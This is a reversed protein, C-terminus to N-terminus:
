RRVLAREVSDNRPSAQVRDPCGAGQRRPGDAAIFTGVALEGSEVAQTMPLSSSYIKPKLAALKTLFNKGYNEQVWLYWDVISPASPRDVGIRARPAELRAPRTTRSSARSVASTNWASASSRTASSSRRRRAERVAQPRVGELLPRARRRRRGVREQARRPRAAQQGVGLRRREPKNAGEEATVQTALVSDINRNVTVNIGYKAQVEGRRGRTAGPEADYYFTM